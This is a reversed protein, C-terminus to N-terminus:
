EECDREIYEVLTWGDGHPRRKVIWAGHIQAIPSRMAHNIADRRSNFRITGKTSNWGKTGVYINGVRAFGSLATGAFWTFKRSM